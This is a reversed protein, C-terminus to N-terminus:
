PNAARLVTTGPSTPHDGHPQVTVLFREATGDPLTFPQRIAGKTPAHFSAIAVPVADAKEAWIMYDDGPPNAPMQKSYFLGRRTAPDTITVALLNGNEDGALLQVSLRALPDRARLEHGLDNIMGEAILSRQRLQTQVSRLAVDTLDREVTMGELESQVTAVKLELWAVAFVCAAALGMLIWFIVLGPGTSREQPATM